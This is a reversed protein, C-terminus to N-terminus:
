VEWGNGRAETELRDRIVRLDAELDALADYDLRGWRGWNQWLRDALNSGDELHRRGGFRQIDRILTDIPEGFAAQDWSFLDTYWHDGPGGM